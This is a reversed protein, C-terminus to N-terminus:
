LLRGDDIVDPVGQKDLEKGIRIVSEFLQDIQTSQIRNNFFAARIVWEGLIM